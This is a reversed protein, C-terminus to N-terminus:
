AIFKKECFQHIIKLNEYGLHSGTYPLRSSNIDIILINTKAYKM